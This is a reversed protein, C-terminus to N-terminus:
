KFSNTLNYIPLIISLVLFGVSVGLILLILPELATTLNKVTQEAESEFYNSLKALVDDLKGTEEGVKVMQAVIPPYISSAAITQNLPSGKEVRASMQDITKQYLGNDVVGRVVRLSELIPVGAAVLLSLTRTFETMIVEKKLEGFVPTRLSIRDTFALVADSKKVRQWFFVAGVVLLLLLWWFHVMFNSVGILIRTPLPLQAGVDNYLSTLRPVVFVMMITIVIAMVILLIAPYVLAGRTKSHFERQKEMTDALRSLIKDLVGGAEGAKILSVYVQPFVDPHKSLSNAFSSGGEVDRMITGIQAAFVQNRVQTRLINLSEVLPLGANIMASLQRTFNTIDNESVSKFKSLFAFPNVSSKKEEISIPFLNNQRVISAAQEPTDAEIKGKVKQGQADQASYSYLAM